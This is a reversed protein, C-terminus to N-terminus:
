ARNLYPVQAGAAHPPCTRKRFSQNPSSLHSITSEVQLAVKSILPQSCAAIAHAHKELRWTLLLVGHVISLKSTFLSVLYVDQLFGSVVLSVDGQHDTAM